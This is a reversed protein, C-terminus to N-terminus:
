KDKLIDALLQYSYAQAQEDYIYATIMLEDFHIQSKWHDIQRSVSEPSGVLTMALMNHVAAQEQKLLSEASNPHSQYLETLRNHWLMQESEVPKSLLQQKGSVLGLFAQTLSTSHMEAEQDTDAVSANAALIVYPKELVPSPKFQSRYITIANSVQAPAFHAAFVYPLGLEAALYASDTSSGLIYTPITLGKAPYAQVPNTGTFYGQLEKIETKFLHTRDQHRRLAQTTVADTGPARGLGLDLRDPYLLELTGFQEAILYPNHNPLMIGGSGVRIRSTESLTHQILQATASSAIVPTNHHEALWYREYGLEEAIKALNVMATFAESFNDKVPLLNLISYKM